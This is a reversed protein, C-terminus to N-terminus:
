LLRFGSYRAIPPIVEAGGIQFDCLYAFQQRIDGNQRQSGSCGGFYYLIDLGDANGDCSHIGCSSRASCGRKYQECLRLVLSGFQQMYQAAHGATSNYVCAVAAACLFNGFQQVVLVDCGIEVMGSQVIGGFVDALVAPLGAFATDHHCGISEAHAYVFRVHADNDVHVQGVGYFGVELFGSSGSTVSLFAYATMRYALDSLVVSCLRM